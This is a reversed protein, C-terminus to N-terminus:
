FGFLKIAVLQGFELLLLDVLVRLDPEQAELGLLHVHAVHLLIVVLVAGIELYVLVLNGVSVLDDLRKALATEALHELAEVVLPFLVHGDLDYAALLSELLM